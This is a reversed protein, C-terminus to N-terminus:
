AVHQGRDGDSVDSDEAVVRIRGGAVAKEANRLAALHRTVNCTSNDNMCCCYAGITPVSPTVAWAMLGSLVIFLGRM